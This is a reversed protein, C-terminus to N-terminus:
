ATASQRLCCRPLIPWRCPCLTDVGASKRIIFRFSKGTQLQLACDSPVQLKSSGWSWFIECNRPHRSEFWIWSKMEPWFGGETWKAKDHGWHDQKYRQWKSSEPIERCIDRTAQTQQACHSKYSNTGLEKPHEINPVAKPENKSGLSEKSLWAHQVIWWLRSPRVNTSDECKTSRFFFLLLQLGGHLSHFFGWLKVIRCSADITPVGLFFCWHVLRCM